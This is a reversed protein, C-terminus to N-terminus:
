IQPHHWTHTEAAWMNALKWGLIGLLSDWPLCSLFSTRRLGEDSNKKICVPLNGASSPCINLDKGVWFTRSSKSAQELIQFLPDVWTDCPQSVTHGVGVTQGKGGEIQCASMSLGDWGSVCNYIRQTYPREFVQRRDAQQGQSIPSVTPSRGVEKDMSGTYQSSSTDISTPDLIHDLSSSSLLTAILHGLPTSKEIETKRFFYLNYIMFFLHTYMGWEKQSPVLSGCNSIPSTLVLFFPYLPAPGPLYKWILEM